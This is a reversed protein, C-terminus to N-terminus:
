EACSLWAFTQHQDITIRRAYANSGNLMLSISDILVCEQKVVPVIFFVFLSCLTLMPAFYLFFLAVPASETLQVICVHLTQSVPPQPLPRCRFGALCGAASEHLWAPTLM